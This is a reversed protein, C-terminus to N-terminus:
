SGKTIKSINCTLSIGLNKKGLKREKKTLLGMSQLLNVNQQVCRRSVKTLISLEPFTTEFPSNETQHNKVVEIVRIQTPNLGMEFLNVIDSIAESKVVNDLAKKQKPERNSTVVKKEETTKNSPDNSFSLEKTPEDQTENGTQARSIPGTPFSGTPAYFKQMVDDSPTVDAAWDPLDDIIKKSTAGGDPM